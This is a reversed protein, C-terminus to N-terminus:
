KKKAQKQIHAQKEAADMMRAMFGKKKNPNAVPVLPELNHKHTVYYQQIIGLLNFVFYYLNLGSPMSMFMITFMVPMIYIMAKQTPDKVSMKQQIFMTVGMLIALGSIVNIGLPLTFPLKYIIDPSSLNDIWLMFPQQRIDIAVNFLSWLAVLIPMQLLMPLCGGMPNIGYTQYLKMTEQQQKQPNDKYKEKLEAIMPQLQQMKAMSKLSTKTLPSLALKIIITFLIIVLGYNPIFSDLFRLLPLMIYESIPRIIFKLGLFNGFEFISEYNNNYTKLLYYDIPGVYLTFSDKQYKQNQFPVKVSASYVERTGYKNNYHNGEIYAGGDSSPNRPSIFAAFYKNRVGVWDVKGNIDKTVKEGLTSADVAVNEEGAYINAHSYNAEDVSNEEVFNLGNQWVVDYRFSSIVDEMNELVIDVKSDYKDGFFMFNKKIKKGNEGSFAYEISLSDKGSLRYYSNNKNANFDLSSTNVLKGDKTVFIINFDGGNKGTNVLQVYKKYFTTDKTKSYYWTNFKKLFVRRIKGGKNTLEVRSLETEITIVKEAQSAPGFPSIDEQKKEEVAVPAVTKATDKQELATTPKPKQPEPAPSNWYLWVVLIVGILLFAFTSNRDM